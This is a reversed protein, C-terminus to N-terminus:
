GLRRGRDTLGDRGGRRVVDGLYDGLGAGVTGGLAQVQPQHHDGAHAAALQAAQLDAVDIQVPAQHVDGEVVDDAATLPNALVGLRV